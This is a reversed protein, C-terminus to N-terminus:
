STLEKIAARQAAIIRQRAIPVWFQLLMDVYKYRDSPGTGQRRRAHHRTAMLCLPGRCGADYTRRNNHTRGAYAEDMLEQILCTWLEAVEFDELTGLMEEPPQPFAM